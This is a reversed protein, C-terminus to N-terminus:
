LYITTLANKEGKFKGNNSEKDMEAGSMYNCNNSGERGVKRLGLGRIALRGPQLVSLNLNLNLTYSSKHRDM